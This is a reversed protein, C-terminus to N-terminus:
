MPSLSAFTSYFWKFHSSRAKGLKEEKLLNEKKRRQGSM